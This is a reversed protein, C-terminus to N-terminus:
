DKRHPLCEEDPSPPCISFKSLTQPFVDLDFSCQGLLIQGGNLEAIFHIAQISDGGEALGYKNLHVNMIVHDNFVAFETITTSMRSIFQRRCQEGQAASLKERNWDDASISASTTNKLMKVTDMKRNAAALLMLEEGNFPMGRVILLHVLDNYGNRAAERLLDPDSIDAGQDILIAAASADDRAIAAALAQRRGLAEARNPPTIKDLAEAASQRVDSDRDKTAATLPQVARPDKIKGLAEAAYWRVRWDTDNLAGILPEVASPDKANGLAKAAKGRVNSDPDKLRGIMQSPSDAQGQGMPALAFFCLFVSVSLTCRLRFQKLRDVTSTAM